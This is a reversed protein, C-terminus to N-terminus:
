AKSSILPSTETGSQSSFGTDQTAPNDTPSDFFGTQSSDYESRPEADVRQALYKEFLTVVERKDYYKAIDYASKGADPSKYPSLDRDYETTVFWDPMELRDIKTPDAGKDLLATVTATDGRRAAAALAVPYEEHKFRDIKSLMAQTLQTKGLHCSLTLASGYQFSQKSLDVSPQQVLWLAIDDREWEIAAILPTCNVEDVENLDNGEHFLQQVTSIDGDIIASIMATTAAADPTPQKM